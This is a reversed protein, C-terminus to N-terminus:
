KQLLRKLQHSITGELRTFRLYLEGKEDQVLIDGVVSTPTVSVVQLSVYFQKGFPVEHFQELQVLSSPLCPAQVKYQSWILLCQVITDYIYPNTTQVPFQGQCREAVPDLRCEMTLRDPSLSLVRQVGQFSPGHFLTGNRYLEEGLIPKEVQPLVVELPDMKPANPLTRALTVHTSYHYLTRGRANKSWLSADFAIIGDKATEKLDLVYEDALTGDFVIGKLVRFDDLKHFAYGPYLQECSTVIWM